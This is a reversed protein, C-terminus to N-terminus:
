GDEKLPVGAGWDHSAPLATSNGNPPFQHPKCLGEGLNKLGGQYLFPQILTVRQVSPLM